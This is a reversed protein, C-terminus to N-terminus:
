PVFFLVNLTGTEAETFSVILQNDDIPKTSAYVPVGESNVISAIFNQTGQNHQFIWELASGFYQSRAVQAPNTASPPYTVTGDPNAQNAVAQLATSLTQADQNVLQQSAASLIADNNTILEQLSSALAANNSSTLQQLALALAAQQEAILKAFTPYTGSEVTVDETPGGNVFQHALGADAVFTNITDSLAM